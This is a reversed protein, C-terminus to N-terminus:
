KSILGSIAENKLITEIGENTLVQLQCFDETFMNQHNQSAHLLKQHSSRINNVEVYNCRYSLNSFRQQDKNSSFTKEM